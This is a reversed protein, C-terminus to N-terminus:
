GENRYENQELETKSAGKLRDMILEYQSEDLFARVEDEEEVEIDCLFAGSRGNEYVNTVKKYFKLEHIHWLKENPTSNSSRCSRYAYLHLDEKITYSWSGCGCEDSTFQVRKIKALIDLLVVSKFTVRM